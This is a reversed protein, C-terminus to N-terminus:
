NTFADHFTNSDITFVTSPITSPMASVSSALLYGNDQFATKLAILLNSYGIFDGTTNPYIWDVSVGDFGYKKIFSLTSNVMRQIQSPNKVLNSFIQSGATSDLQSGLALLFKTQINNMRHVNFLTYGDNDIDNEPDTSTIEYTTSDLSAYSYM